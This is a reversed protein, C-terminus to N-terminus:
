IGMETAEANIKNFAKPNEDLIIDSVPIAKAIPTITSSPITMTSFEYLCKLSACNFSYIVDFCFSGLPFCSIIEGYFLITIFILEDFNPIARPMARLTENRNQLIMKAIQPFSKLKLM